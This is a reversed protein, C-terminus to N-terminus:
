SYIWVIVAIRVYHPPHGLKECIAYLTVVATLNPLWGGRDSVTVRSSGGTPLRSPM